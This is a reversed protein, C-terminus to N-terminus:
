SNSKEDALFFKSFKITITSLILSYVIFLMTLDLIEGLNAIPVTDSAIAFTLVLTATAIGKASQLTAFIKQKFTLGERTLTILVVIFRIFLYIGFLALSSLIFQADLPIKLILGIIMFVLVYLAKSFISEIKLIDEQKKKIFNGFLLGLTSVSLVGDGGINEALVFALIASLIVSLPTYVRSYKQNIIKYLLVFLLAGSGIGAVIKVVLPELLPIIEPVVNASVSTMFDVIIFPIIVLIPTNFISEFKLIDVVKHKVNAFITTMVDTSSGGALAAFFIAVPIPIDLILHSAGALFVLEFLLFTITLKLANPSYQNLTRLKIQTTSGFVIIALALLATATLFLEPFAIISEGQYTILGMAMGALILLLADPVKLRRAFLSVLLGILLTAALSTVISLADLVM